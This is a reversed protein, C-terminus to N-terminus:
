EKTQMTRRKKDYLADRLENLILIGRHQRRRRSDHIHSSLGVVMMMIMSVMM